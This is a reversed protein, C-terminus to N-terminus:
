TRAKRRPLRSTALKVVDSWLVGDLALGFILLATGMALLGVLTSVTWAAVVLAVLGLFQLFTSM